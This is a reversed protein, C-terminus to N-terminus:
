GGTANFFPFNSRKGTVIAFDNGTGVAAERLSRFNASIVSRLHAVIPPLSM